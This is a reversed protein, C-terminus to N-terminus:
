KLANCFAEAATADGNNFLDHYDNHGSNFLTTSLPDGVWRGTEIFVPGYGPVNVRVVPGATSIFVLNGDEYM